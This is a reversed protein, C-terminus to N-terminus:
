GRESLGTGLLSNWLNMYSEVMQRVGFEMQFRRRAAAGMTTRLALNGALRRLHVLGAPDGAKFLFGTVGDVVIEAAGGVNSAVAPIGARAAELLVTPYPDFDISAHLLVDIGDMSGADDVWGRFVVNPLRKAQLRACSARLEPAPEGYLHWEIEPGTQEIWPRVTEFGKWRAYLGFFGVRISSAHRSPQLQSAASPLDPLGNRLVILDGDLGTNRCAAALAQSVCVLPRLRPASARLLLQRSRTLFSARPHDHLTGTVRAGLLGALLVSPEFARVGWAHVIGVRAARVGRAARLSALLNQWVTDRGAGWRWSPSAAGATWRALRSADPRLLLCRPSFERPLGQVLTALVREAGFAAEHAVSVVAVRDKM